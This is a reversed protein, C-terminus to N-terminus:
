RDHLMKDLAKLAIPWAPRTQLYTEWWPLLLSSVDDRQPIAIQWHEIALQINAEECRSLEMVEAAALVVPLMALAVIPEARFPGLGETYRPLDAQLQSALWAVRLVEPLESLPNTLLAEISFRNADAFAYGGGGLVPHVLIAEAEEVLWQPDTLRRLHATLGQGYGLWQEQIPRARLSLQELLKPQILRMAAEVDAIAGSLRVIRSTMTAQRLGWKALWTEALAQNSEIGAALGVLTRWGRAVQGQLWEGLCAHLQSAAPALTILLEEDAVGAELAIAQAAHLASASFSTRWNIKV